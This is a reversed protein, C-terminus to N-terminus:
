VGIDDSENLARTGPLGCVRGLREQAHQVRAQAAFRDEDRGFPADDDTGAVDGILIVAPDARVQGRPRVVLVGQGAEDPAMERKARRRIRGSVEDGIRDVVVRADDADRGHLDAELRDHVGERQEATRREDGIAVADDDECRPLVPEVGRQLGEGHGLPDIQFQCADITVVADTREGDGQVEVCFGRRKAEVRDDFSCATVCRAPGGLQQDLPAHKFAKVPLKKDEGIQGAHVPLRPQPGRQRGHEGSQQDHDHEVPRLATADGPLLLFRPVNQFARIGLEFLVIALRM